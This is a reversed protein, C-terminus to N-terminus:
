QERRRLHKQGVERVEDYRQVSPMEDSMVERGVKDLVAAGERGGWGVTIM